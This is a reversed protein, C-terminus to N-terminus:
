SKAERGRKAFTTTYLPDIRAIAESVARAYSLCETWGRSPRIPAVVHLGRGGTTKVWSSLGLTKLIERVLRAAKVVQSWTVEPGPDLDWVIRNPREV